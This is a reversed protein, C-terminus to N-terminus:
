HGMSRDAELGDEREKEEQIARDMDRAFCSNCIWTNPWAEIYPEDHEVCIGAEHLM